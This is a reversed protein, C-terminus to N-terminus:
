CLNVSIFFVKCLSNFTGVDDISLSLSAAMIFGLMDLVTVAFVPFEMSSSTLKLYRLCTRILNRVLRSYSTFKLKEKWEFILFFVTQFYNTKIEPGANLSLLLLVGESKEQLLATVGLFVRTSSTTTQFSVSDQFQDFLSLSEVLNIIIIIQKAKHVTNKLRFFFCNYM